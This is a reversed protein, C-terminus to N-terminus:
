HCAPLMDLSQKRLLEIHLDSLFIENSCNVVVPLTETVFHEIM